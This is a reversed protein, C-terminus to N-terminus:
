GKARPPTNAPAIAAGPTTALARLDTLNFYHLRKSVLSAILKRERLEIARYRDFLRVGFLRLKPEPLIDQLMYGDNSSVQFVSAWIDSVAFLSKDGSLCEVLKNGVMERRKLELTVSKHEVSTVATREKVALLLACRKCKSGTQLALRCVQCRSDLSRSLAESVQLDTLM